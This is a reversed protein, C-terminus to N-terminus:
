VGLELTMGSINSEILDIASLPYDLSTRQRFTTRPVSSQYLFAFSWDDPKLKM